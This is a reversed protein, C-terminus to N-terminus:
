LPDIGLIIPLIVPNRKMTKWFLDGLADRVQNKIRAWDTVGSELANRVTQEAIRRSEEMVDESDKMYVFGRTVIEPGALLKSSGSGAVLEPIEEYRITGPTRASPEAASGQAGASEQGAAASGQAGANGQVEAKEGSAEAGAAGEAQVAASKRLSYSPEYDDAFARASAAPFAGLALAAALAASM